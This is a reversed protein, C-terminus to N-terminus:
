VRQTNLIFANTQQRNLSVTMMQNITELSAKTDINFIEFAQRLYKSLSKIDAMAKVIESEKNAIEETAIGSTIANGSEVGAKVVEGGVAAYNIGRGMQRASINFSDAGLNKGLRTVSTRVAGVLLRSSNKVVTPILKSIIKTIMPMLKNILAKGASKALLSIAIMTVAVTIASVVTSIINSIKEDVGMDKLLKNVSESIFKMMPQIVHELVPAMVRDTISKGTIAEVIPDAIMLAIGVAALALSAGGTFVAGAISVVTLLGGLIKGVCGMTKSLQEAKIIAEAQEKAKAQMDAQRAEQLLKSLEASDQLKRDANEGILQSLQGMLLTMAALGTLHHENMGVSEAVGVESNNQIKSFLGDAYQSKQVAISSLFQASQKSKELEGYALSKNAQAKLVASQAKQYGPDTPSLAALNKELDALTSEAAALKEGATTLEDIADKLNAQAFLSQEVAQQYDKLTQKSFAAKAQNLATLQTLRSKLKDDNASSLIQMLSGVLATLGKQKVVSVKPHPILPKEIKSNIVSRGDFVEALQKIAPSKACKSETLDNAKILKTNPTVYDETSLILPSLFDVTGLNNNMVIRRRYWPNWVSM